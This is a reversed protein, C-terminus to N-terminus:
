FLLKKYVIRPMLNQNRRPSVTTLNVLAHSTRVRPYINTSSHNESRLLSSINNAGSTELNTLGVFTVFVNPDEDTFFTLLCSIIIVVKNKQLTNFRTNCFVTLVEWEPDFSQENTPLEYYWPFESFNKM